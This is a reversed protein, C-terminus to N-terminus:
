RVFALSSFWGANKRVHISGVFCPAVNSLSVFMAILKIIISPMKLEKLTLNFSTIVKMYQICFTKSALACIIGDNQQIILHKGQTIMQLSYYIVGLILASACAIKYTM